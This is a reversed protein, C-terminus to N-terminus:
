TGNSSSYKYKQADTRGREVDVSRLVPIAAWLMVVLFFFAYRINGTLDSILGVLLPGIFSSSKNFSLTSLYTHLLRSANILRLYMCVKDTISFLGYRFCIVILKISFSSFECTGDRRREQPYCNRTFLEQM